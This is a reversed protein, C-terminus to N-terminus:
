TDAAMQEAKEGQVPCTRQSAREREGGASAKGVAESFCPPFFFLDKEPVLKSSIAETYKFTIVPTSGLFVVVLLFLRKEELSGAEEIRSDSDQLRHSSLSLRNSWVALIM